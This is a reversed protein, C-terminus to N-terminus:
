AGILLQTGRDTTVTFGDRLNFNVVKYSYFSNIQQVFTSVAVQVEELADLKAKVSTIFPGLVSHLVSLRDKPCTKISKLINEVLLPSALGYRSYSESRKSLENLVFASNITTAPTKKSRPHAVQNIIEAYISNTNAEGMNTGRLARQRFWEVVRKAAIELDDPKAMERMALMREHVLLVGEEEDAKQTESSIGFTRDASLHYINIQLHQLQKLFARDNNDDPGKIVNEADAKYNFSALVSKEDKIVFSFSGVLKDKGKQIIAKIGNGFEVTFSNFQTQALFTRHGEGPAPALMHFLINLITTKGSGNDGYLIFIKSLDAAGAREAPIDYSFRGFLKRVSLASICAPKIKQTKM